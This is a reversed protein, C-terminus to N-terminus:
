DAAGMAAIEDKYTGLAERGKPTTQYVGTRVREFWGYHDDAMIRTANPVGTAEKVDRGRAEGHALHALCRLADQRYATMLTTKNVGGTNPDGVRRQFERLLRGKRPTSQRPAYPGPDVLVEVFGDRARVTMVGLGLRRALKVNAQYAKRGRVSGAPVALYVADSLALRAVGQHFLALSFGTKMEVIVPPEDERCAVVDAGAVESKVEYGQGELFAKIPAYLDSEKPAQVSSM